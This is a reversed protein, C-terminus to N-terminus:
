GPPPRKEFFFKMFFFFTCLIHYTLMGVAFASKEQNDNMDSLLFSMVGMAIAAMSWM